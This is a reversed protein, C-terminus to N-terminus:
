ECVSGEGTEKAGIPGPGSFLQFPQCGVGSGRDPQDRKWTTSLFAEVLATPGVSPLWAVAKAGGKFCSGFM